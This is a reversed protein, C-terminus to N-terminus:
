FMSTRSGISGTDSVIPRLPSGAKHIKPIFENQITPKVYRFQHKPLRDEDKMSNLIDVLKDRYELTPDPKLKKYTKEDSLSVKVECKSTHMM